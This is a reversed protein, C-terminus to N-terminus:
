PAPLSFIMFTSREMLYRRAHFAATLHGGLFGSGGTILLRAM